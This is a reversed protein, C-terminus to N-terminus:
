LSFWSESRQDIRRDIGNYNGINFLKEKSIEKDVLKIFINEMAEVDSKCNHHDFEFGYYDSISKLGYNELNLFHKALTHTSIWNFKQALYWWYTKESQYLCESRIVQEDFLGYSGFVLHNAHCCFLGNRHKLMYKLLLRLSDHKDNFSDAEQRSIGHISYSDEIYLQPNFTLYIDDIISFDYIKRTRLYATLIETTNPNKSTTELDLFTVNLEKLKLTNQHM